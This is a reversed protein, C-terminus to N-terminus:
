DAVQRGQKVRNCECSDRRDREKGRDDNSLFSIM